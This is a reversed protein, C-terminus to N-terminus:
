EETVVGTIRARPVQLEVRVPANSTAAGVNGAEDRAEVRLFFEPPLGRTSCTCVGSNELGDRLVTWPGDPTPAYALTIPRARLCRDTAVWRVMLEGDGGRAHRLLVGQLKVEPPTEDVEVWVQPAAGTGPEDEALGGASVPRLTFGYRGEQQVTIPALGTPPLVLDHRRWPRGDRTWWVEVHGVDGARANELSYHLRFRKKNVHLIPTAPHVPSEAGAAM